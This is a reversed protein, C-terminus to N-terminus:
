SGSEVAKFLNWFVRTIPAVGFREEVHARLRDPEFRRGACEELARAFGAVDGEKVLFGNVGHDIIEAIGGPVDFAVVPTGCANAELLVNPFGEFMSSLAFVDAAAFRPFPNVEFGCFTVKGALGPKGAQAELREREPGEGLIELRFDHQLGACAELLLSFRKEPGLRGASVIRLPRPGTERQRRGAADTVAAVNVPNHILHLREAPLGYACRMNERMPESQCVVADFRRYALRYLADFGRRRHFLRNNLTAMTSERAVFRTRRPLLPRMLGIPINLHGLTSFVLDPALRRLVSYLRPVASRVTPRQLDVVTVGAPVLDRFSGRRDLVILTREVPYSALGELLTLMVRESGGGELNPLVCALSKM